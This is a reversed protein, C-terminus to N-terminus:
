CFHVLKVRMVLKSRKACGHLLERCKSDLSRRLCREVSSKRAAIYGTAPHSLNKLPPVTRTFFPGATSFSGPSLM